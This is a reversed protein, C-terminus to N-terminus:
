SVETTMSVETKMSNCVICAAKSENLVNEGKAADSTGTLTFHLNIKSIWPKGGEGRDIIIEAAGTVQTYTLGSKESFVKFTALVCNVLSLGYLDEPSYGGGPGMFEPPIACTIPANGHSTSTWTEAIGPKASAEAKFTM